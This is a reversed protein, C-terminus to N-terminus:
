PHSISILPTKPDHKELFECGGIGLCILLWMIGIALYHFATNGENDKPPTSM